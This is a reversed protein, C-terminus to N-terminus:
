FDINWGNKVLIYKERNSERQGIQIWSIQFLWILLLLSIPYFNWSLFMWSVATICHDLPDLPLIDVKSVLSGQEIGLRPIMFINMCTM